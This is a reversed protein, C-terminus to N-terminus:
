NYPLHRRDAGGSRVPKGLIAARNGHVVVTDFRQNRIMRKLRLSTSLDWPGFSPLAIAKELNAFQKRMLSSKHVVSVVECGACQLAEHTDIAARELGGLGRGMMVNLVRM